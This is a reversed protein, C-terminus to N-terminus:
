LLSTDLSFVKGGEIGNVPDSIGGNTTIYLTRGDRALKAATSGVLALSGPEGAILTQRKSTLDLKVLSSSATALWIKGGQDFTFDDAQGNNGNLPYTHTNSLVEVPGSVTATTPHFPVRALLPSQFTNDYYLCNDRIQVGNVGLLPVASANPKLTLDDLFIDPALPPAALGNLFTASTIDLIKRATVPPRSKLIVPGHHRWQSLDLSWVSWSGTVGGAPTSNGVNIGFADPAYEAIGLTCNADPFSYILNASYEIPDIEWVEPKFLLTALLKGNSRVAINEVWTGNPFQYVTKLLANADVLTSSKASQGSPM